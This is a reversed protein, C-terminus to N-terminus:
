KKKYTGCFGGNPAKTAITLGVKGLVVVGTTTNFFGLELVKVGTSNYFIEFMMSVRVENSNKKQYEKSLSNEFASIKLLGKTKSANWASVYLKGHKTTGSKAGSKKKYPIWGNKTLINDNLVTGLPVQPTNMMRNDKKKYFKQGYFDNQYAM